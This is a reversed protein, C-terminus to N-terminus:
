APGDDGFMTVAEVRGRDEGQVVAICRSDCQYDVELSGGSWIYPGEVSTVANPQNLGYREMPAVAMIWVELPESPAEGELLIGAATAELSIQDERATEASQQDSLLEKVDQMRNGAVHASGNVVLQPTYPGRIGLAEAYMRQRNASEPIAMPDPGDVYDWYDVVWILPIFPGDTEELEVLNQQAAPCAPCNKSVFLEVLCVPDARASPNLAACLILFVALARLM